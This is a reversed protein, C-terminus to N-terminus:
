LKWLAWNIVNEAIAKQSMEEHLHHMFLLHHASQRICRSEEHEDLTPFLMDFNQLTTAYM